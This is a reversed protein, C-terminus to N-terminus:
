EVSYLAPEGPRTRTSLSNGHVPTPHPVNFYRSQDQLTEKNQPLPHLATAGPRTGSFERPRPYSTPSPCVQGSSSLKRPRPYPNPSSHVQGPGQNRPRPYPTPSPCVQGPRPSKGGLVLKKIM